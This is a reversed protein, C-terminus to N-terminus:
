RVRSMRFTGRDAKSAYTSRFEDGQAEGAYEYVGGALWGLDASGRFKWTGSEQSADMLVEYEFTFFGWYTAHYRASYRSEGEARRLLCRLAGSHGNADSQWTGKWRGELATPFSPLPMGGAAEWDAEFTSCGVAALLVFVIVKRRM